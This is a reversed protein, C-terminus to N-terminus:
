VALRDANDVCPLQVRFVTGGPFSEVRISGKHASIIRKTIALGLGTGNRNTTFFPQFIHELNEKPIGPGTDAVSAELYGPAQKQIKLALQGGAESMAQTANNILNNFVQELARGNGVIKPCGAEVQLKYRVGVREMRPHLRELLRQILVGLDVPEMTYDTPRAFSLVSKMLEGLRDCDQQLRDIMEQNPDQEPLSMQLVQLGTSINNIPNRVEHAFIATVEGLIAQQELQQAQVRIQEQQSLDQLLVLISELTEGNMVPLTRLRALFAEGNRRYLRLNGLGYSPSGQQAATLAPLLTETGILINQVPQGCAERGAYGLTLEALPNMQVLHLDPSLVLVGEQVTEVLTASLRLQREKAAIEAQMQQLRAHAEFIATLTAAILVSIPLINAPPPTLSDSITVLGIAAACAKNADMQGLPAAALYSLQNTHAARHLGSTQRKGPMWLYPKRLAVLDQSTLEDPLVQAVGWGACRELGPSGGNARYVALTGAGTLRHGAELAAQLAADLDTQQAAGALGFVNELLDGSRRVEAQQQLLLNIEQMVVLAWKGKPALPTVKLQLDVKSGSRRTLKVNKQELVAWRALESEDMASFLANLEREYLEPRTYSTLEVAKSNALLVREPRMEVLLAPQPVLEILAEFEPAGPKFHRLYSTSYQVTESM